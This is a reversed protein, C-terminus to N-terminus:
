LIKSLELDQLYYMMLIVGHEIRRWGDSTHFGNQITFRWIRYAKLSEPVILPEIRDRNCRSCVIGHHNRLNHELCQCKKVNDM